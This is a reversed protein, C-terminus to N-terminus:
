GSTVFFVQIKTGKGIESEIKIAGKHARVIGALVAMGLGHGKNKTTFFPEFIHKRIEASIGPGTDAVELFVVQNNEALTTFEEAQVDFFTSNLEKSTFKETGTRVVIVGKNEGSADGANTLLNLLVQRIHTEEASILPLNENTEDRLTIREPISVRVLDLMERAIKSINLPKLAFASKGAFVLLQSCLEIAIKSASDIKELYPITEPSTKLAALELNGRIAMLLNNFDHGIGGALLGLSELKQHQLTKEGIALREREIQKRESIDRTILVTTPKELHTVVEMSIEVPFVKGDKSQHLDEFIHSTNNRTLRLQEPINVTSEKAQFRFFSKGIMEGVEYGYMKAGKENLYRILCEDTQVDVQLLSVGEFMRRAIALFLEETDHLKNEANRRRDTELAISVFDAISGAFAKEIPLWERPSGCHEHCVVGVVEGQLFIPADLLTTIQHLKLYNDRLEITREDNEAELTAITRLNELAEFYSPANKAQLEEGSIHTGEKTDFAEACRIKTHEEDYLWINVREIELAYAAKETLFQLVQPFNGGVIINGRALETLVQGLDIGNRLM